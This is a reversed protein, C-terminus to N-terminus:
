DKFFWQYACYGLTGVIALVILSTLLRLVGSVISLVLSAGLLVVLIKGVPPLRDFGNKLTTVLRDFDLANSTSRDPQIKPEEGPPTQPAATAQNLETELEQLKQELDRHNSSTM